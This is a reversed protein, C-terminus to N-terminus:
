GPDPGGSRARKLESFSASRALVALADWLELAEEGRPLPTLVPGFFARSGELQLVPSGVADGVAAQGQEHSARVADDYSPDDLADALAPDLGVETLAERAVEADLARGQRHVRTGVAAYVDGLREAPVAAMLRVGRKATELREAYAAPVDNGENLVALSMVHWRLDLDRAPAVEEALWRTTTWTWPCSPDFWVDTATM